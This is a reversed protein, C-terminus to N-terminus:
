NKREDESLGIEAKVAMLIERAFEIPGNAIVAEPSAPAGDILLNEIAALGWQLYAADIEASIVASELKEKLDQGAALYEAKAGIERVQRALEIRRGFSMRTVGYRVGPLVKSERWVVSAYTTGAKRDVLRLLSNM